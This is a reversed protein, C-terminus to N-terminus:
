DEDAESTEPNLDYPTIVVLVGILPHDFYHLETSRLRRTQKLSYNFLRESYIKESDQELFDGDYEWTFDTLKEPATQELDPDPEPENQGLLSNEGLVNFDTTLNFMDVEEKDPRRFYLDTDIHLYNRKIYVLLSGDIEPVWPLPVLTPEEPNDSQETGSQHSSHEDALKTEADIQDVAAQVDEIKQNDNSNEYGQQELLNGELILETEIPPALVIKKQGDYDFTEQYDAGGAIRIPTASAKNDIPQRWAFHGLLQYSPHQALNKAEAKLRLLSEELPIFPEELLITSELEALEESTLKEEEADITKNDANSNQTTDISGHLQASGSDDDKLSENNLDSSNKSDLELNTEEPGYPQLFDILEVPMNLKIDPDWSENFLGDDSSPKYLIIEVEFWREEKQSEPESNAATASTSNVLFNLGLILALALFGEHQRNVLCNYLNHISIKNKLL